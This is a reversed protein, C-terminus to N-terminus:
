ANETMFDLVYNPLVRALFAVVVAPPGNLRGPFYRSNPRASILAHLIDANTSETTHAGDFVKRYGEQKAQGLYRDYLKWTEADVDDPKVFGSSVVKDAFSTKILGPNIGVVAIGQPQVEKRLGDIFADLAAKTAGYAANAGISFIGAISSISIVRGKSARLIPLLKKTLAVAGFYNVEM